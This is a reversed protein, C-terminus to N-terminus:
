LVALLEDLDLPQTFAVGVHGDRVWAIRGARAALSTMEVTVPRGPVLHRGVELMVGHASINLATADLKDCVGLGIIAPLCIDTRRSRRDDSPVPSASVPPM